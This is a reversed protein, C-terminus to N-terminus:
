IEAEEPECVLVLFLAGILCLAASLVAWLAGNDRRYLYGSLFVGLAQMSMGLVGSGWAGCMLWIGGGGISSLVRGRIKRPTMDAFLSQFAPNMFSNTVTTFAALVLVNRKMFGLIDRLTQVAVM